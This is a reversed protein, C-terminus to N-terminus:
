QIRGPDLLLVKFCSCPSKHKNLFSLVLKWVLLSVIKVRSDHSPIQICDIPLSLTPPICEASQVGYSVLISNREVEVRTQCLGADLESFLPSALKLTMM